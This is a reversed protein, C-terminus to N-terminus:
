FCILSYVLLTKLVNYSMGVMVVGNPSHTVVLSLKEMKLRAAKLLTIDQAFGEVAIVKGQTDFLPSEIIRLTHIDGKKHVIELEHQWELLYLQIL